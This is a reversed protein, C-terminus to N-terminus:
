SGRRPSLTSLPLLLSSSIEKQPRRAELHDTNVVREGADEVRVPCGQYDYTLEQSIDPTTAILLGRGTGSAWANNPVLTIM